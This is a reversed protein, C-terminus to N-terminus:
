EGKRDKSQKHAKRIENFHSKSFGWAIKFDYQSDTRCMWSGDNYRKNIQSERREFPTGVNDTADTADLNSNGTSDHGHVKWYKLIKPVEQGTLLELEEHNQPKIILWVSCEKHNVKDMYKNNYGTYMGYYDGYSVTYDPHKEGILLDITLGNTKYWNGGFTNKEKGAEKRDCYENMLQFLLDKNQEIAKRYWDKVADVKGFAVYEEYIRDRMYEALQERIEKYVQMRIRQESGVYEAIYVNKDRNKDALCKVNNKQHLANWDIKFGQGWLQVMEINKNHFSGKEFYQGQETFEKAYEGNLLKQEEFSLNVQKHSEVIESTGIVMLENKVIIETNYPLLSDIYRIQYDLEKGKVKYVLLIMAVMIPFFGEIGLDYMAITSNQMKDENLNYETAYGKYDHGDYSFVLDYPFIKDAKSETWRGNRANTLNGIYAEDIRDNCSLITGNEKIIIAFFCHASNEARILCFYMGDAQQEVCLICEAYTNFIHLNIDINTVDEIRGSKKLLEIHCKGFNEVVDELAKMIKNSNDPTNGIMKGQTIRGYLENLINYFNLEAQKLVDSNFMAYIAKEEDYDKSETILDWLSTKCEKMADEFEKKAYLCALMGTGDYNELIKEIVKGIKHWHYNISLLDFRTQNADYETYNAWKNLIDIYNM